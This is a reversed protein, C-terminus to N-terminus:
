YPKRRLGMLQTVMLAFM